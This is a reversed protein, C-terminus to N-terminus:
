PNPQDFDRLDAGSSAIVGHQWYAALAVRRHYTTRMDQQDSVMDCFPVGNQKMAQQTMDNSECPFRLLDVCALWSAKDMVVRVAQQGFTWSREIVTSGDASVSTEDVTKKLEDRLSCLVDKHCRRLFPSYWVHIMFDVAATVNEIIFAAFVLVLNRLANHLDADNIVFNLPTRYGEPLSVITKIM